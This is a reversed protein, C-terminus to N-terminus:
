ISKTYQITLTGYISYISGNTEKPVYRMQILLAGDGIKAVSKSRDVDLIDFGEYTYTDTPLNKRILIHTTADGSKGEVYTKQLTNPTSFYVNFESGKFYGYLPLNKQLTFSVKIDHTSHCEKFNPITFFNKKSKSFISIIGGPYTNQMKIEFRTTYATNCISADKGDVGAKGQSGQPGTDGKQGQPGRQGRDGKEGKKGQPGIQGQLGQEGKEGQPGQPGEITCGFFFASVFLLLLTKQM